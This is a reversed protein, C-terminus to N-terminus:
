YGIKVRIRAQGTSVSSSSLNKDYIESFIENIDRTTLGKTYLKFALDQMQTNLSLM